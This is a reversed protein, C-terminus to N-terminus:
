EADETPVASSKGVAALLSLGAALFLILLIPMGATSRKGSVKLDIKMEQWPEAQLKRTFIYMSGHEPYLISLGSPSRLASDQHEVFRVALKKTRNWPMPYLKEKHKTVELSEKSDTIGTRAEVVSSQGIM